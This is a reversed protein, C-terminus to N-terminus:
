KLGFLKKARKEEDDESENKNEDESSEDKKDEEPKEEPEKGDEAKEESAGDNEKPEFEKAEDNEEKTVDSTDESTEWGKTKQDEPSMNKFEETLEWGVLQVLDGLQEVNVDGDIFLQYFGAVIQEEDFGEAKLEEIMKKGEDITM